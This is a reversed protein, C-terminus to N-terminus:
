HQGFAMINITAEEEGQGRRVRGPPSMKILGQRASPFLEFYPSISMMSTITKATNPVAKPLKRFTHM